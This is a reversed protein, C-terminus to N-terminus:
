GFRNLICEMVEYQSKWDKGPTFPKHQVCSPVTGGGKIASLPLAGLMGSELQRKKKLKQSQLLLVKCFLGDQYKHEETRNTIVTITIIKINTEM